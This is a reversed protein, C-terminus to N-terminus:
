APEEQARFGLIRQGSALAVGALILALGGM